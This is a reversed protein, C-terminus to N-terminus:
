IGVNMDGTSDTEALGMLEDFDSAADKVSFGEAVAQEIYRQKAETMDEMIRPSVPSSQKVIVAKAPKGVPLVGERRQADIRRGREGLWLAAFFAGIIWGAVGLVVTM